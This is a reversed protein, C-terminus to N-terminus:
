INSTNQTSVKPFSSYKPTSLCTHHSIINCKISHSAKVLELYKEFSEMTITTEMSDKVM